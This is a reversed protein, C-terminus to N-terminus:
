SERWARMIARIEDLTRPFHKTFNEYNFASRAGRLLVDFGEAFTEQRARQYWGNEDPHTYYYFDNVKEGPAAERKVAAPMADFDKKWAARFAPSETIGKTAYWERQGEKPAGAADMEAAAREGLIYAGAHGIEHNVANEWVRSPRWEGSKKHKIEEAVIIFKGAPGYSHFGGTYDNDEHLDERGQRVRANVEIRYGDDLMDRLIREPLNSRLHEKVRAVFEASARGTVLADVTSAAPAPLPAAALPAAPVPAAALPAASVAAPALAIAAPTLAAAAQPVASLSLTPAVIASPASHYEAAPLALVAARAPAARLALVSAVALVVARKM